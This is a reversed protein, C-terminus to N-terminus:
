SAPVWWSNILSSKSHYLCTETYSNGPRYPLTHQDHWIIISKPVKLFLTNYIESNWDDMKANTHTNTAPAHVLHEEILISHLFIREARILIYGNTAIWYMLVHIHM